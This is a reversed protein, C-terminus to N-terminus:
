GRRRKQGAPDERPKTSVSTKRPEDSMTLPRDTAWPRTCANITTTGSIANSNPASNPDTLFRTGHVLDAKLSHFFSEM